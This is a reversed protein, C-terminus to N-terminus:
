LREELARGSTITSTGATKRGGQSSLRLAQIMVLLGVAARAGLMAFAAGMVGYRPILLVCGGAVLLLGAGNFIAQRKPAAFNVLANPLTVFALNFLTGIVLVCFAPASPGYEPPFFRHIGWGGLLVAILGAVIGLPVALALYSMWFRNFRGGAYAPAIKPALVTQMIGDLFDPIGALFVAGGYIGAQTNDTFRRLMLVDLRDYLAGM